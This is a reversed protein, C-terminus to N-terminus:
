EGSMEVITLGTIRSPENLVLEDHTEMESLEDSEKDTRGKKSNLEAWRELNDEDVRTISVKKLEVM